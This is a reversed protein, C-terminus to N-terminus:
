RPSSPVSATRASGRRSGPGCPHASWRPRGPQHGPPVDPSDSSWRWATSVARRQQNICVDASQQRVGITPGPSTLAPLRHTCAAAYGAPTQYGSGFAAAHPQVRTELRHDRGQGPALVLSTLNLFEDRVQGNFSKIYGNCWPQAPPIFALGVREGAWDRMVACVLKPGNDSRLVGPYGHVM